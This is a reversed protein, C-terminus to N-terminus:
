LNWHSGTSYMSPRPICPFEGSSWQFASYVRCTDIPGWEFVYFTRIYKTFQGSNWQFACLSRSTGIPGTLYM